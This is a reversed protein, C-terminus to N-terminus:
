EEERPSGLGVEELMEDLLRRAAHLNPRLGTEVWLWMNYIIANEPHEINNERCYTACTIEYSRPWRKLALCVARHRKMYRADEIIIDAFHRAKELDQHGGKDRWRSVYGVIAAESGPFYNAHCFEVPQIPLGKYHDGGVQEELASM